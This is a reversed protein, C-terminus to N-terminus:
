TTLISIAFIIYSGSIIVIMFIGNIMYFRQFKRRYELIKRLQPFREELNFKSIFKDGFHIFLLNVVISLVVGHSVLLSIAINKAFNLDGMWEKVSDLDVMSSRKIDSNRLVVENGKSSSGAVQLSNLDEPSMANSIVRISDNIATTAENIDKVSSDFKRNIIIGQTQMEGAIKTKEFDEKAALFDATLRNFKNQDERLEASRALLKIAIANARSLYIEADKIAIVASNLKSKVEDLSKNLNDISEKLVGEKNALDALEAQTLTIRHNLYATNLATLGIFIGAYEKVLRNLNSFTSQKFGNTQDTGSSTFIICLYFGVIMFIYIVKLYFYTKALQQSPMLLTPDLILNDAAPILDQYEFKNKLLTM